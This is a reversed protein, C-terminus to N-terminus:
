DPDFGMIDGTKLLNLGLYFKSFSVQQLKTLGLLPLYPRPDATKIELVHYPLIAHSYRMELGNAFGMVEVHSDLTLRYDNIRYRRRNYRVRISPIILGANNAFAMIASFMGSNVDTPNLQYWLPADDGQVNVAKIRDKLKRIITLDKDKMQLQSFTGDGYGRIRFKRKRNEGNLCQNYFLEDTTDYYISDVIGEPFPDSGGHLSELVDIVYSLHENTVLFKFENYPFNVIDM